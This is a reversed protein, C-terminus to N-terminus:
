RAVNKTASSEHRLILRPAADATAPSVDCFGSNKFFDIALLRQTDLHVEVEPSNEIIHDLLLTGIGQQRDSHRVWLLEVDTANWAAFGLVQEGRQAIIIELSQSYVMELATAVADLDAASIFDKRREVSNKWVDLLDPVEDISTWKRLVVQEDM